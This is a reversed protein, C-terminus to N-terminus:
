GPDNNPPIVLQLTANFHKVIANLMGGDYGVWKQDQMASSKSVNVMYPPSEFLSMRFPQGRMNKAKNSYYLPGDAATRFNFFFNSM